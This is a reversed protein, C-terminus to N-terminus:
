IAAQNDAVVDGLHTLLFGEGSCGSCDLINHRRRGRGECESCFQWEHPPKLCASYLLRIAFKNRTIKFSVSDSINAATPRVLEKVQSLLPQARRWLIAARDFRTPDELEKRLEISELWAQDSPEEPALVQWPETLTLPVGKQDASGNALLAATDRGTEPDVAIRTSAVPNVDPLRTTIVTESEPIVPQNSASHQIQLEDAENCDNRSGDPKNVGGIQSTTVQARAPSCDASAPALQLIRRGNSHLTNSVPDDQFHGSDKHPAGPAPALEDSNERDSLDGVMESSEFAEYEGHAEQKQRGDHREGTLSKKREALISRFATFTLHARDHTNSMEADWNRAVEMCSQVFRPKLGLEKILGSWEGHACLGKANILADGIAKHKAICNNVLLKLESYNSAIQRKIELLRDNKAPDATTRDNPQLKSLRSSRSQKSEIAKRFLGEGGSGNSLAPLAIINNVDPLKEPLHSSRSLRASRVVSATNPAM